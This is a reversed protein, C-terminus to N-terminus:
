YKIVAWKAFTRSQAEQWQKKYSNYASKMFEGEDTWYQLDHRNPEKEEHPNVTYARVSEFLTALSELAFECYMYKKLYNKYHWADDKEVVKAADEESLGPYIGIYHLMEFPDSRHIELFCPDILVEEPEGNFWYKQDPDIGWLQWYKNEFTIRCKSYDKKLGILFFKGKATETPITM